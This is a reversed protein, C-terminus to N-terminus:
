HFDRVCELFLKFCDYKSMSQDVNKLVEPDEVPNCYSINLFAKLQQRQFAIVSQSCIKERWGGYGHQM